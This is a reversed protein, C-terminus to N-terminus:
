DDSRRFFFVALGLTVVIVVVLLSGELTARLDPDGGKRYNPDVKRLATALGVAGDTYDNQRHVVTGDPSQVYIAIESNAEFGVGNVAWHDKPYDQVVTFSRFDSLAPDNYLDDRVKKRIADSGIVTIRIFQSDDPIGQTGMLLLASEKTISRGNHYYSEPRGKMESLEIGYNAMKKIPFLDLYKEPIPTPLTSEKFNGKSDMELYVREPVKYVGVQVSDKYLAVQRSDDTPVWSFDLFMIVAFLLNMM